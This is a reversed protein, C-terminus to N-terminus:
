GAGSAVLLVEAIVVGALVVAGTHVLGGPRGLGPLALVAAGAVAGVCVDALAALEDHGGLGVRLLPGPAEALATGRALAGLAGALAAGRAFAGLAGALAAGRAFAGLAGALAARTRAARVLAGLSGALAAGAQVTADLHAMLAVQVSLAATTTPTPHAFM